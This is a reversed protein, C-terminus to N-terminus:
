VSVVVRSRSLCLAVIRESMARAASRREEGDVFIRAGITRKYELASGAVELSGGRQSESTLDRIPFHM